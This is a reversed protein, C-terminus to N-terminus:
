QRPFSCEEYAQCIAEINKLRMTLDSIENEIM